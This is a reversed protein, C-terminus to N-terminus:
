DDEDIVVVEVNEAAPAAEEEEEDGLAAMAADLEEDDFEGDEEEPMLPQQPVRAGDEQQVLQPVGTMLGAQQRHEAINQRAAALEPVRFMGSPVKICLRSGQPAAQALSIVQAKISTNHRIYQVSSLDL